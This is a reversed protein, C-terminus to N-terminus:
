RRQYEIAHAAGTALFLAAVGSLLFIRTIM